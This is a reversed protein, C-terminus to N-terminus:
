KRQRKAAPEAPPQPTSLREKVSADLGDWWCWLWASVCRTAEEKTRRTGRQSQVGAAPDHYCVCRSKKGEYKYGGPLYGQVFPNAGVPHGFYSTCKPPLEHEPRARPIQACHAGDADARLQM